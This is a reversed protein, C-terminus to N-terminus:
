PTIKGVIEEIFRMKMIEKAADPSISLSRM